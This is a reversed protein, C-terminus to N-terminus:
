WKIIIETRPDGLTYYKESVNKSVQNDDYFVIKSLVDFVLKELNDVDPKKIYPDLEKVKKESDVPNFMFSLELEVPIEKPVIKFDDPM